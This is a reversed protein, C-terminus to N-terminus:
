DFDTPDMTYAAGRLALERFVETAVVLMAMANNDMFRAAIVRIEADEAAIGTKEFQEAEEFIIWLENNTLSLIHKRLESM